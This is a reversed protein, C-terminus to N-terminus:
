TERPHDKVKSEIALIREEIQNKATPSVYERVGLEQAKPKEYPEDNQIQSLIRRV